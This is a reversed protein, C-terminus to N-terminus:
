RGFRMPDAKRRRWNSRIIVTTSLGISVGFFVSIVWSADPGLAWTHVGVLIYVTSAVISAVLGTVVAAVIEHVPPQVQDGALRRYVSAGTLVAAVAGVFFGLVGM